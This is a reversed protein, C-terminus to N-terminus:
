RNGQQIIQDLKHNINDGLKEIKAHITDMSKLYEDRNVCTGAVTLSLKQHSEAVEKLAAELDKNEQKL